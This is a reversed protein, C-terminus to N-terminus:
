EKDGVEAHSTHEDRACQQTDHGIGKMAVYLIGGVTLWFSFLVLFVILLFSSDKEERDISM